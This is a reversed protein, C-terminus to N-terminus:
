TTPLQSDDGHQAHRDHEDHDRGTRGHRGEVREMVVRGRRGPERLRVLEALEFPAPRGVLREGDLHEDRVAHQEPVRDLAREGRKQERESRECGDDAHARADAAASDAEQRPRDEEDLRQHHELGAPGQDLVPQREGRRQSRPIQGHEDARAFAGGDQEGSDERARCCPHLVDPEEDHEGRADRQQEERPPPEPQDRQGEKGDGGRRDGQGPVDLVEDLGAIREVWEDEAAHVLVGLAPDIRADVLVAV